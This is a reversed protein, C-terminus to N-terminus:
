ATLAVRRRAYATGSLINTASSHRVHVVWRADGSSSARGFSRCGWRTLVAYCVCCGARWTTGKGDSRHGDQEMLYDARRASVPSDSRAPASDKGIGLGAIESGKESEPSEGCAIPRHLLRHRTQFETNRDDGLGHTSM